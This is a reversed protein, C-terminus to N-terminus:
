QRADMGPFRITKGSIKLFVVANLQYSNVTKIMSISLRLISQKLNTTHGSSAGAKWFYAEEKRKRKQQLPWKCYWYLLCPLHYM